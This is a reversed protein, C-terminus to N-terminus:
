AYVDVDLARVVILRLYNMPLDDNRRFVSDLKNVFGGRLHSLAKPMARDSKFVNGLM